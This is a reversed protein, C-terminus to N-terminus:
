FFTTQIENNLIIWPRRDSKVLSIPKIALVDELFILSGYNSQRKFEKFSEEVALEKGYKVMLKDFDETSLHSFFKVDSVITIALIPGSSEKLFLIDDGQVKRFPIVKSKTFRSEITKKKEIIKDLYPQTLIALHGRIKLKHCIKSLSQISIPSQYTQLVNKLQILISKSQEFVEVKANEGIDSNSIIKKIIGPAINQKKEVIEFNDTM